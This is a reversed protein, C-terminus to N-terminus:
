RTVVCFRCVVVVIKKYEEHSSRRSRILNFTPKAARHPAM